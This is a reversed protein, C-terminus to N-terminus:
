QSRRDKRLLQFRPNHFADTPGHRGVQQTFGAERLKSEIFERDVYKDHIEIILVKVRDLWEVGAEFIAQEAGEIDMKLVDVVDIDNEDLIQPVTLTKVNEPPLAYVRELRGSNGERRQAVHETTTSSSWWENPYLTVEGPQADAAVQMISWDYGNLDRNKTLAEVNLSVPEVCVIRANPYRAQFYLASLGANAGLDVVSTVADGDIDPHSYIQEIFNERLIYLDSQNKRFSVRQSKGHLTLDITVPKRTAFPRMFMGAHYAFVWRALRMGERRGFMKVAQAIEARCERMQRGTLAAWSMPPDGDRKLYKFTLGASKRPLTSM